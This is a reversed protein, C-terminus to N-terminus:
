RSINTNTKLGDQELYIGNGSKDEEANIPRILEAWTGHKVNNLFELVSSEREPKNDFIKKFFSIKM